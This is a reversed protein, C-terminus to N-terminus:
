RNSRDPPPPAFALLAAVAGVAVGLYSTVARWVLAYATWHSEPLVGAMFMPVSAEAVGSGGPTPSFYLLSFQVAQRAVVGLYDQEVGLGRAVLLGVACKNLLMGVSLLVGLGLSSWWRGRVMRISAAYDAGGREILSGLRRAWGGARGGLRGGAATVWAAVKPGGRPHLILPVLLLPLALAAVLLGRQVGGVGAAIETTSLLYGGAFGGVLLMASLIGVFNLLLAAVAGAPRLGGRALTALQAPGSAAGMPSVAAAFLNVLYTRLSVSYGVGRELQRVWLHLRLGGLLFDLLMLGVAAALPGPTM